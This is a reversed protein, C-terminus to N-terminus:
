QLTSDSFMEDTSKRSQKIKNKSYIVVIFSNTRETSEPTAKFAIVPTPPSPAGLVGQLDDRELLNWRTYSGAKRISRLRCGCGIRSTTDIVERITSGEVRSIAGIADLLAL